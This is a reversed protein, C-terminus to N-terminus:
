ERSTHALPTHPTHSPRTAGAPTFGQVEGGWVAQQPLGMGVRAGACMCVCVCVCVPVCLGVGVCGCVWGCLGVCAWVCVCLCEGVGVWGGVSV